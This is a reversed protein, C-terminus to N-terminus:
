KEQCKQGRERLTRAQLKKAIQASTAHHRGMPLDRVLGCGSIFEDAEVAGSTSLDNELYACLEVGVPAPM